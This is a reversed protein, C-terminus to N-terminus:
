RRDEEVNNRLKVFSNYAGIFMIIILLVIIAIVILIIMSISM